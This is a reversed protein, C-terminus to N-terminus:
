FDVVNKNWNWNILIDGVARTSHATAAQPRRLPRLGTLM